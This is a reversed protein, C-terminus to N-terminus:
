ILYPRFNLFFKHFSRSKLRFLVKELGDTESLGTGNECGFTFANKKRSHGHFDCALLIKRDLKTIFRYLLKSWFITPSLAKTPERWQRNLDIGALSCRHSGNIVGDPNLMPIIKFVCNRRLSAAIDDPGLLFQILGHM